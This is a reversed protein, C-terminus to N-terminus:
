VFFRCFERDEGLFDAFVSKDADVWAQITSRFDMGAEVSCTFFRNDNIIDSIVGRWTKIAVSIRTMERLIISIM